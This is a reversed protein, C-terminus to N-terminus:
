FYISNGILNSKVAGINYLVCNHNRHITVVVAWREAHVASLCGTSTFIPSERNNNINVYSLGTCTYFVYVFLLAFLGPCKSGYPNGCHACKRSATPKRPWLIRRQHTPPSNVCLWKVFSLLPLMACKGCILCPRGHGDVLCRTAGKCYSHNASSMM